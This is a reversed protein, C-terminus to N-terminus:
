FHGSSRLNGGFQVSKEPLNELKTGCQSTQRAWILVYWQWSLDDRMQMWATEVPDGQNKEGWPLVMSQTTIWFTATSHIFSAGEEWLNLTVQWDGDLQEPILSAIFSMGGEFMCASSNSISQKRWLCFIIYDPVGIESLGVQCSLRCAVNM